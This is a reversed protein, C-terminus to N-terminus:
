RASTKMLRSKLPAVIFIMGGDISDKACAGLYSRRSAERMKIRM